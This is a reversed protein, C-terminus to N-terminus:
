LARPFPMTKALPPPPVTAALTRILLARERDAQEREQDRRAQRWNQWSLWALITAATAGGVEVTLGRGSGFAAWTTAAAVAWLVIALTM